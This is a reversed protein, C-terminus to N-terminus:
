AVSDAREAAVGPARGYFGRALNVRPREGGSFVAPPVGHLRGPIGLRTFFVRARDRGDPCGAVSDLAPLRPVVHLFQSVYVLTRARVDLVLRPDAGSPTVMTGSHRM